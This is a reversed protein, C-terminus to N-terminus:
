LCRWFFKEPAVLVQEGHCGLYSLDKKRFGHLYSLDKELSLQLNHFDELRTEM